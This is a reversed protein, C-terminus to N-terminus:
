RDDTPPPGGLAITWNADIMTGSAGWGNEILVHRVESPRPRRPFTHIPRSRVHFGTHINWWRNFTRKYMVVVTWKPAAEDTGHEILYAAEHQDATALYGLLYAQAKPTACAYACAYDRVADADWPPTTAPVPPDHDGAMGNGRVMELPNPCFAVAAPQDRDDLGALKPKDRCAGGTGPAITPSPPVPTPPPTTVAPKPPPPPEVRADSGCALAALCVVLPTVRVTFWRERGCRSNGRVFRV